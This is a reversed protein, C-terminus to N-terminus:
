NTWKASEYLAASLTSTDQELKPREATGALVVVQFSGPPCFRGFINRCQAATIEINYMVPLLALLKSPYPHCILDLVAGRVFRTAQAEIEIAINNGIVGSVRAPRGRGVRGFADQKRGETWM